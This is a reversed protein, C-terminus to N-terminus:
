ADKDLISSVENLTLMKLEHVCTDQVLEFLQELLEIAKETEGLEIKAKIRGTIQASLTAIKYVQEKTM